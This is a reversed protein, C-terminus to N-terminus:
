CNSLHLGNKKKTEDNEDVVTSLQRAAAVAKNIDASQGEAVENIQENTFPNMNKITTGGLSPTFEGNIYLSINKQTEHIYSASKHTSIM